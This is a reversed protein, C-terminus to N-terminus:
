REAADLTIEFPFGIAELSSPQTVTLPLAHLTMSGNKQRVQAQLPGCLIGEKKCFEALSTLFADFLDNGQTLTYQESWKGTWFSQKRQQQTVPVDFDQLSLRCFGNIIIREGARTYRGCHVMLRAEDKIIDVYTRALDRGYQFRRSKFDIAQEGHLQVEQRLQEYFDM